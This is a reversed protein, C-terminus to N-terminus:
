AASGSFQKTPAADAPHQEKVPLQLVTLRQNETLRTVM